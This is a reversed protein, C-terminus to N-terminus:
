FKRNMLTFKYNIFYDIILIFSGKYLVRYKLVNSWHVSYIYM